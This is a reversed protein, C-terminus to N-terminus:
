RAIGIMLGLEVKDALAGRRGRMGFDTRDIVGLAQLTCGALAQATCNSPLLTFHAPRTVGRMTLEGDLESGTALADLSLPASVFHISPYNQADFFEPALVWRRFRASDMRLSEADITAQVIATHDTENIAIDGRIQEFVGTVKTVWLLRV